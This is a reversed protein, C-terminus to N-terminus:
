LLASLKELQSSSLQNILRNFHTSYEDSHFESIDSVRIKEEFAYFLGSVSASDKTYDNRLNAAKRQIKRFLDWGKQANLGISESAAKVSINESSESYLKIIRFLELEKEDLISELEALFSNSYNILDEIQYSFEEDGATLDSNNEEEDIKDILYRDSNDRKFNSILNKLIVKCFTEFSSQKNDFRDLAKLISDNVIEEADEKSIKLSVAYIILSNRLLNFNKLNIENLINYNRCYM